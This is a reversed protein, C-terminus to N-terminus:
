PVVRNPPFSPGSSSPVSVSCLPQPIKNRKASSLVAGIFLPRFCDNLGNSMHWKEKQPFSPGSSSPVSVLNRVQSPTEERESSLVAGIFLPRFSGHLQQM